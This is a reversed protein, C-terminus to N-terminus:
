NSEPKSEVPFEVKCVDGDCKVLKSQSQAKKCKYYKCFLYSVTIGSVLGSTFITSKKIFDSNINSLM